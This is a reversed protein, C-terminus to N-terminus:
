TCKVRSLKTAGKEGSNKQNLELEISKKIQM